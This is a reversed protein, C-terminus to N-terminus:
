KYKDPSVIIKLLFAGKKDKYNYVLTANNERYLKMDPHTKINNIVNPEIFERLENINIDKKELNVLTYNYALTKDPMAITNDMRTDQDLMMPLTKNIESAIETLAKDFTPKKFFLQQVAFYSIAFAIIGVITPLIKRKNEPTKQSKANEIIISKTKPLEFGCGSCYKASQDNSIGCNTCNKKEM